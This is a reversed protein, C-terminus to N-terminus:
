VVRPHARLARKAAAGLNSNETSVQVLPRPARPCVNVVEARLGLPRARPARVQLPQPCVYGAPLTAALPHTRPFDIRELSFCGHLRLSTLNPAWISVSELTDSRLISTSRLAPPPPRAARASVSRESHQEGSL